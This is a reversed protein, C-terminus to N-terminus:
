GLQIITINDTQGVAFRMNQPDIALSAPPLKWGVGPVQPAICSTQEGTKLGEWKQVVMGTELDILKPYQYSGLVFKDGMPYIIGAKEQLVAKTSFLRTSLNYVGIMDPLLLSEDDPEVDNPDYDEDETTLILLDDKVLIAVMVKVGRRTVRIKGQDLLSPQKLVQNIDYIRIDEFPSWV